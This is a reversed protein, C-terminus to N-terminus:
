YHIKWLCMKSKEKLMNEYKLLSLGDVNITDKNGNEERAEKNNRDEEKANERANEDLTEENAM